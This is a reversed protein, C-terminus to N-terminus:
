RWPLLLVHIVGHGIEGGVARIAKDVDALGFYHTSLKEL